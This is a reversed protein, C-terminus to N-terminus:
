ASNWLPLPPTVRRSATRETPLQAKGLMTAIRKEQWKGTSVQALHLEDQAAKLEADCYHHRM